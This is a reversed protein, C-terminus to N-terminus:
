VVKFFEISCYPDNEAIEKLFFYFTVVNLTFGVVAQFIGLDLYAKSGVLWCIFNQM